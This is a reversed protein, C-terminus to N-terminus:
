DNDERQDRRFVQLKEKYGPVGGAQTKRQGRVPQWSGRQIRELLSASQAIVKVPLGRDALDSTAEMVTNYTKTGDEHFVRLQVPYLTQFKIDKEKLARRTEAYERRKALIYPAYDHDLNIKCNRWSFGKKQWALKLM